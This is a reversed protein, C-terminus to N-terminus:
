HIGLNTPRRGHLQVSQGANPPLQVAVRKMGSRHFLFVFASGLIWAAACSSVMFFFVNLPNILPIGVLFFRVFKPWDGSRLAQACRIDVFRLVAGFVTMGIFIAPYGYNVYLEFIPGAGFSTTESLTINTYLSVFSSGGMEPKNPWFVRPIWAFFSEVITGGNQFLDPYSQLWSIAKGIFVNQNLRMNILDLQHFDFPNFFSAKAMAGFVVAIRAELSADSWLVERLYQRAEMYSVFASLILYFAVVGLFVRNPSLRHGRTTGRLAWTFALVTSGAIFGYSLFGWGLLYVAPIFSAVLLWKYKLRWDKRQHASSLGLCVGVIALNRAAELVSEISAQGASVSTLAFALGGVMLVLWIPLGPVEVSIASLRGDGSKMRGPRTAIRCGFAIGAIGLVSAFCGQAVMEDTFDLSLLYDNDVHSYGPVLYVLAGGYMFTMTILFAIPLGVSGEVSRNCIRSVYYCLLVWSLAILLLQGATTM